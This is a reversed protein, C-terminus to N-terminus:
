GSIGLKAAEARAQKSTREVRDIVPRLAERIQTRLAAMKETLRQQAHRRNAVVSGMIERLYDKAARDRNQKEVCVDQLYHEVRERMIGAIGLLHMFRERPVAGERTKYEQIAAVERAIRKLFRLAEDRAIIEVDPWFWKRWWNAKDYQARIQKTLRSIEGSTDSLWRDAVHLRLQRDYLVWSQMAAITESLKSRADRACTNLNKQESRKAAAWETAAVGELRQAENEFEKSAMEYAAFAEQFPKRKFEETKERAAKAGFIAGVLGGIATGIGPLILSGLIAGAKAGVAGGAMTGGVDLAANKAATTLDTKGDLLLGVERVGSLAITVIPFHPHVASHSGTLLTDAHQVQDHIQDRLLGHDAIVLHDSGSELARHMDALGEGTASNIHMADAPIHEADANVIVPVDPDTAFHDRIHSAADKVTKIQVDHGDISIDSAPWNQTPALKADIGAEQLHRQLIAEGVRGTHDNIHGGLASGSGGGDWVADWRESLTDPAMRHSLNSFNQIEYGAGSSVGNYFDQDMAAVAAGVDHATYIAIEATGVMAARTQFVKADLRDTVARWNPDDAELRNGDVGVSIRARQALELGVPDFPRPLLAQAKIAVESKKKRLVWFRRTFTSCVYKLWDLFRSVTMKSTMKRQM